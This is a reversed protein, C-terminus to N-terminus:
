GQAASDGQGAVRQVPFEYLEEIFMTVLRSLLASREPGHPMGSDDATEILATKFAILLEEPPQRLQRCSLCLERLAQRQGFATAGRESRTRSGAGSEFAHRLLRRQDPALALRNAVSRLPDPSYM